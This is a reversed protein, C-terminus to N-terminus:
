TTFGERPCHHPPIFRPLPSPSLCQIPAPLLPTQPFHSKRCRPSPSFSSAPNSLPSISVCSQIGAQLPQSAPRRKSLALNYASLTIVNLYGRPSVLYQRCIEICQRLYEGYCCQLTSQLYNINCKSLTFGLCLINLFKSTTM